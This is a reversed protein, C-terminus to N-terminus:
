VAEYTWSAIQGAEPDFNVGVLFIKKGSNLYRRFYDREKIQALAIEATKNLKFEFVFVFDEKQNPTKNKARSRM